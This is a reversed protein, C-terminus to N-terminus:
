ENMHVQLQAFRRFNQVAICLGVIKWGSAKFLKKANIFLKKACQKDAFSYEM